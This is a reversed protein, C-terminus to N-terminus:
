TPMENLLNGHTNRAKIQAFAIPLVTEDRTFRKLITGHM